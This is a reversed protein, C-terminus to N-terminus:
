RDGLRARERVLVRLELEDALHGLREAVQGLGVLDRRRRDRAQRCELLAVRLGPRPEQIEAVVAGRRDGRCQRRIGALGHRHRGVLGLEEDGVGPEAALM